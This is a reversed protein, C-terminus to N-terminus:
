VPKTVFIQAALGTKKVKDAAAWAQTESKFIAFVTPGSGSMLVGDAGLRKLEEKRSEPVCERM